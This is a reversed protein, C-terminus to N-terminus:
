LKMQSLYKIEMEFSQIDRIKKRRKKVVNPPATSPRSDDRNENGNSKISKTDFEIRNKIIKYNKLIVDVMWILGQKMTKYSNKDCIDAFMPTKDRTAITELDYVRSFEFINMANTEDQFTGIILFPKGNLFKNSLLMQIIKCNKSITEDLKQTNILYIIGM